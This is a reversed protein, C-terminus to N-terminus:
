KLIYAMFIYSNTYYELLILSFSIYQYQVYVNFLLTCANENIDCVNSNHICTAHLIISLMDIYLM